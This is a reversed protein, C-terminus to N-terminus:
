NKELQFSFPNFIWFNNDNARAIAEIGFYGFDQLNLRFLENLTRDLILITGFDQYFVMVEFPDFADISQPTGLSRNSYQFLAQGQNNTKNIQNSADLYYLQQLRDTAFLPTSKPITYLLKYNLSDSEQAALDINPGM